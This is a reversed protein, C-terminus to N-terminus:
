GNQNRKARIGTGVLGILVTGLLGIYPLANDPVRDKKSTTGILTEAQVGKVKSSSALILPTTVYNQPPAVRAQTASQGNSLFLSQTTYTGQSQSHPVSQLESVVVSSAADRVVIFGAGVQEKSLTITQNPLLISYEPFTFTKSGTVRYSSIDIEYPSDNSMQIEGKEGRTLSLTVPLVTIEHRTVQEQRKYLGYATVVYKGPYRFSHVVEKGLATAGDGFNWEYLLSDSISKGVGSPTVLFEIPQNVYGVKQGAIALSLTVGPLTLRVTEDAPASRIIGNKNGNGSSSGSSSEETEVPSKVVGSNAANPTAAGTVWGATTYQATEKTVNDGGISQWNEGGAVQDELGGDARTLKLTAGTNVLAGTYILFAAGSASDDSSRELVAYAGPAITGTLEISLNMGDSLKWGSVDVSSDSTNKLEIWEHNASVTSGMWSVENILVAAQSLNPIILLSLGLVWRM